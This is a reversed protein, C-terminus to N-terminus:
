SRADIAPGVQTPVAYKRDVDEINVLNNILLDIFYITIQLSIGYVESPMIFEGYPNFVSKFHEVDEQYLGKFVDTRLLGWM